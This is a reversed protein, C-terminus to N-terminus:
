FSFYSFLHFLFQLFLFLFLFLFFFRNVGTLSWQSGLSMREFESKMNFVFWWIDRWPKQKKQNTQCTIKQNTQCNIKQNKQYSNQKQNKHNQKKNTQASYHQFAFLEKTTKKTHM